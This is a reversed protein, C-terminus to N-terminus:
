ILNVPQNDELYYNPKLGLFDEGALLSKLGNIERLFSTERLWFLNFHNIRASAGV